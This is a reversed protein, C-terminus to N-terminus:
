HCGAGHGELGAFPGCPHETVWVHLMPPTPVRVGGPSCRGNRFLGAIRGDADWCLDRHRHWRARPDDLDPVDAMSAGPPLIYMASVFTRQDGDVRYVLSEPRRPNLTDADALRRPHVYHEFGTIADGISRYGADVAMDVDAWRAANHRTARILRAASLGRVRDAKPTEAPQATEGPPSAHSAHDDVHQVAARPGDPPAAAPAAVAAVALTIALGAVAGLVGLLSSSTM